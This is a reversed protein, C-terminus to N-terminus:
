KNDVERLLIKVDDIDSLNLRSDKVLETVGEIKGFEDLFAKKSIKVPVIKGNNDLFYTTKKVFVDKAQDAHYGTSAEQSNPKFISRLQKYLHIKNGSFIVECFREGDEPTILKRFVLTDLRDKSFFKVSEVIKANVVVEEENKKAILLGKNTDINLMLDAIIKGSNLTIKGPEFDDFWYPAKVEKGGLKLLSSNQYQPDVIEQILVQGFVSQLSVISLIVVLKNM